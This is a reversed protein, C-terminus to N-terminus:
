VCSAPMHNRCDQSPRCSSRPPRRPPSHHLRHREQGPRMQTDLPLAEALVLVLVLVLASVDRTPRAASQEGGAAGRGSGEWGKDQGGM